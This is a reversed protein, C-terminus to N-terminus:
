LGQQYYLDNMIGVSHTHVLNRMNAVMLVIETIDKLRYYLLLSDNSGFYLLLYLSHTYLLQISAAVRTRKGVSDHIAMNMLLVLAPFAKIDM